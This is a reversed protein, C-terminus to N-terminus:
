KPRVAIAAIEVRGDKPLRSVQVTTRAPARKFFGAYEANIAAFDNLDVLFIQVQVVEDMTLGAAKLIAAINRLAQRAQGISDAAVMEGTATLGLQGSVFVMNGAAIAQSYPGIPAAVETTVIPGQLPAGAVSPAATACALLATMTMTTRFLM